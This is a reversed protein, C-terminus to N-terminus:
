NTPNLHVHDRLGQEYGMIKRWIFKSFYLLCIANGVGRGPEALKKTFFTHFHIQKKNISTELIFTAQFMRLKVIVFGAQLQGQKKNLNAQCIVPYEIILM